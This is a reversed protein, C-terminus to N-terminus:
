LEFFVTEDDGQMHVDWVLAGAPGRRALLTARRESAVLSLVHDSVNRPDDPFYVRTAAAKLLGRMFVHVNLHPAQGQVSGPKITRFRFSGDSHTAVRGFGRLGKSGANGPDEPHAYHGAGDAQWIELLADPVGRGDGDLVRGQITIVEGHADPGVFDESCLWSLGIEFFPGVTQSATMRLSM